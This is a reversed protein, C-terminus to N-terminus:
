DPWCPDRHCLSSDRLHSRGLLRQRQSRSCSWLGSLDNCAYRGTWRGGVWSDKYGVSGPTQAGGGPTQANNESATMLAQTSKWSGTYGGVWSEKYGRLGATYGWGATQIGGLWSDNIDVRGWGATLDQANEWSGTCGGAWSNIGTYGGMWSDKYGKWGPTM